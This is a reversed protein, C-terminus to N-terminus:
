LMDNKKGIPGVRLSRPYWGTELLLEGVTQDSKLRNIQAFRAIIGLDCRFTQFVARSQVAFLQMRLVKSRGSLTEDTFTDLSILQRTLPTTSRLSLDVPPISRLPPGNLYSGIRLRWFYRALILQFANRLYGIQVGNHGRGIGAAEPYVSLRNTFSLDCRHTHLIVPGVM